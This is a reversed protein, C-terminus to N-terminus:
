QRKTQLMGPCFRECGIIPLCLWVRDFKSTVNHQVNYIVAASTRKFLQPKKLHDLQHLEKLWRPSLSFQHCASKNTRKEFWCNSSILLKDSPDRSLYIEFNIKFLFIIALKRQFSKELQCWSFPFDVIFFTKM